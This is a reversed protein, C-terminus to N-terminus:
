RQLLLVTRGVLNRVCTALAACPAFFPITPTRSSTVRATLLVRLAALLTSSADSVTSAAAVLRCRPM